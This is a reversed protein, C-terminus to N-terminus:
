IHPPKLRIVRLPLITVPNTFNESLDMRRTHPSRATGPPPQPKPKPEATNPGPRASAHDQYDPQKEENRFACARGRSHTEM